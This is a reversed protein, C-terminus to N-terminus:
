SRAGPCHAVVQEDVEPLRVTVDFHPGAPRRVARAVEATAGPDVRVTGTRVTDGVSLEYDLERREALHSDVAFTVKVASPSGGCVVVTGDDARGFSLAVYQQPRHTASLAVQDRFGPVALALLATMAVVLGAVPLVRQYWRSTREEPGDSTV